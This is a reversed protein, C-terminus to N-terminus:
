EKRELQLLVYNTQTSIKKVEQSVSISTKKLIVQM